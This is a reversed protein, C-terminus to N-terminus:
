NSGWSVGAELFDVEAWPNGERWGSERDYGREEGAKRGAETNAGGEKSVREYVVEVEEEEEKGGPRGGKVRYPAHGEGRQRDKVKGM